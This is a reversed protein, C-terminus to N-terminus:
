LLYLCLLKTFPVMNNDIDDRSVTIEGMVFFLNQKAVVVEALM